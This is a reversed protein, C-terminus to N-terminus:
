GIYFTIEGKRGGSGRVPIVWDTCRCALALPNPSQIEASTPPPASIKRVQGPPGQSEGLRMYYPLRTEKRPPFVAPGQRHGGVGM